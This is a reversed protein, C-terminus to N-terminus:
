LKELLKKRLTAIIRNAYQQRFQENWVTTPLGLIDAGYRSQLEETKYDSAIFTFGKQSIKLSISKQFDGTDRLTVRDYPQGKKIKRQITKKAYVGLSRGNTDSGTTFLWDGNSEALDDQFFRTTALMEALVLKKLKAKSFASKLNKFFVKM